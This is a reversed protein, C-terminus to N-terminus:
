AAVAPEPRCLESVLRRCLVALPGRGSATPPLGGELAAPLGAEPRLTGALPLGLADAIDEGSLQGPAPGRVVIRLQACHATARTVVKAAAAVARVEAPVVLLGQDAAQLAATAAEDLHRPLDVVVLDRAARGAALVATMAEAPMAPLDRRDFSVVALEGRGPLAALFRAPDVQGSASTLEPWRLGQDDEWGLLLDLGGSLPDGDVLLARRGLNAATVTLGTALVSAGAGGRGGLVAVVPAPPRRSRCSAFREVLWAEGVPLLAVHGAGVAEAREWPDPPGGPGAVLVVDTRRPLQARRCAFAQDVGIVVLPATSYRARAAIPDAAVYPEVGGAAALRLLDDLLREDATVVLPRPVTTSRITM